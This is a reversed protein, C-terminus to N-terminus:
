EWESEGSHLCNGILAINVPIYLILLIYHYLDQIDCWPTDEVQGDKNFKIFSRYM